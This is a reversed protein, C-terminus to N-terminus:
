HYCRPNEPSISLPFTDPLCTYCREAQPAERLGIFVTDCRQETAGLEQGIFLTSTTSGTASVIPFHACAFREGCVLNIGFYTEKKILVCELIETNTLKTNLIRNEKDIISTSVRIDEKFTHRGRRLLEKRQRYLFPEGRHGSQSKPCRTTVAM